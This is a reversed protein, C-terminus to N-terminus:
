NNNNTNFLIIGTGIRQLSKTTGMFIANNYFYLHSTNTNQQPQSQLKQKNPSHTYSNNKAQM